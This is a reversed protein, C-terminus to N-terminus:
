AKINSSFTNSVSINLNNVWIRAIHAQSLILLRRSLLFFYFLWFSADLVAVSAYNITETLKNLKHYINQILLSILSAKLESKKKSMLKMWLVRSFLPMLAAAVVIFNCTCFSHLFFGSFNWKVKCTNIFNNCTNSIAHLTSIVRTCTFCCCCDFVDFCNWTNTSWFSKAFLNKSILLQSIQYTKLLM